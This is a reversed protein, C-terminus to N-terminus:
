VIDAVKGVVTCHLVVQEASLIDFDAVLETSASYMCKFPMWTVVNTNVVGDAASSVIIYAFKGAYLLAPTNEIIFSVM